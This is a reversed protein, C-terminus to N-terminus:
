QYPHIETIIAQCGIIRPMLELQKEFWITRFNYLIQSHQFYLLQLQYVHFIVLDHSFRQFWVTDSMLFSPCCVLLLSHSWSYFYSICVCVCMGSVPWAEPRLVSSADRWSVPLLRDNRRWSGPWVNLSCSRSIRLCVITVNIMVSDSKGTHCKNQICVHMYNVSCHM